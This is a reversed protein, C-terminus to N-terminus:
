ATKCELALAKDEADWEAFLRDWEEATPRRELLDAEVLAALRTHFTAAAAKLYRLEAARHRAYGSQRRSISRLSQSM